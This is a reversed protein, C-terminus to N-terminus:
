ITMEFVCNEKIQSQLMLNEHLNTNGPVISVNQDESNTNPTDRADLLQLAENVEDLFSDDMKVYGVDDYDDEHYPLSLAKQMWDEDIETYEHGSSLVKEPLPETDLSSSDTSSGSKMSTKDALDFSNHRSNSGPSQIERDKSMHLSERKKQSWKRPISPRRKKQNKTCTECLMFLDSYVKQMELQEEEGAGSKLGCDPRLEPQDIVIKELLTSLSGIRSNQRWFKQTNPCKGEGNSADDGSAAELDFSHLSFNGSDGGSSQLRSRRASDDTENKNESRGVAKCSSSDLKEQSFYLKYYYLNRIWQSKLSCSPASFKVFKGDNCEISFLHDFGSQSEYCSQIKLCNKIDLSGKHPQNTKFSDEDKYYYLFVQCQGDNIRTVLTLVCWRLQWCKPFIAKAKCKAPSKALLGSCLVQMRRDDM